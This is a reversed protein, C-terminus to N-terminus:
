ISNIFLSFQLMWQLELIFYLFLLSSAFLTLYLIQIYFVVFIFHFIFHYRNLESNLILHIFFTTNHLPSPTKLNIASPQYYNILKFLYFSSINNIFYITELNTFLKYYNITTLLFLASFIPTFLKISILITVSIPSLLQNNTKYSNNSLHSTSLLSSLFLLM